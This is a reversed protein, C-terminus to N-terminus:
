EVEVETYVTILKIDNTGLRKQLIMRMNEIGEEAVPHYIEKKQIPDYYEFFYLTKLHDRPLLQIQIM